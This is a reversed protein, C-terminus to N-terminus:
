EPPVEGPLLEPGAVQDFAQAEALQGVKVVTLGFVVAILGVLVMGVGINRSRRRRHLDHEARIGM